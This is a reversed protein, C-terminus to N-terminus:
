KEPDVGHKKLIGRISGVDKISLVEQMTFKVGFASEIETILLLGRFSDWRAVTDPSTADTVKQPSVKLVKAVVKKLISM